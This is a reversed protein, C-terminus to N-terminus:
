LIFVVLGDACFEGTTQCHFRVYRCSKRSKDGLPSAPFDDAASKETLDDGEQKKQDVVSLRKEEDGGAAVTDVDKMKVDDDRNESAIAAGDGDIILKGDGDELNQGEQGHSMKGNESEITQDGTCATQSEEGDANKEHQKEEEKEDERNNDRKEGSEGEAVSGGESRAREFGEAGEEDGGEGEKREKKVPVPVSANEGEAPFNVVASPGFFKRAAADHALAADVATEFRGLYYQKGPTNLRAMWKSKEKLQSVGIYNGFKGMGM